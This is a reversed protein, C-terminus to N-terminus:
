QNADRAVPLQFRGWDKSSVEPHNMKLYDVIPKFTIVKENSVIYKILKTETDIINAKGELIKKLFFELSLMRENDSLNNELDLTGKFVKMESDDIDVMATAHGGFIVNEVNLNNILYKYHFYYFRGYQSRQLEVLESVEKGKRIWFSKYKKFGLSKLVVGFKKRFEKTEM